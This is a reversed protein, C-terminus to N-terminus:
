KEPTWKTLSPFDPQDDESKTDRARIWLFSGDPLSVNLGVDEGEYAFIKAKDPIKSLIKKLTKATIM